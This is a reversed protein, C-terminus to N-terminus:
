GYWLSVIIIAFMTKSLVFLLLMTCKIGVVSVRIFGVRGRIRCQGRRGRKYGCRQQSITKIMLGIMLMMLLIM